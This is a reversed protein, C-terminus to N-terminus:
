KNRRMKCIYFGDTHYEFPLYVHEEIKEYNLHSELFKKVQEENEAKNITCTSYVYYGGVKLLDATSNLIEEQLKIIEEISEININYKVDVKHGLVGLGSCPLDALIYDFAGSKVHDKIMRGDILQLKVNEVGLRKFNTKMLKLKHEHVDCAHIEGTNNMIDALHSTKGGPASCIDLVISGKSPNLVESVKQSAIDQITVKGSLFLSHNVISKNVVLGNNVLEHRSFEIGDNTLIKAVEDYNSKLNNIRISTKKKDENEEFIKIVTQSDYDKLLYAVLWKPYSYKISLYDLEGLNDISKLPNRLFNRLVANVFKGIYKDKINAVNVTENVVVHEPINLYVLQYVGMRLLNLVWTKQKKTLYDQLYYDISIKKEVTGLVLITFLAKDEKTLEYKSLYENIVINSYGGKELIKNIAELALKRVDM